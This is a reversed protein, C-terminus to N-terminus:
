YSIGIKFTLSNHVTKERFESQFYQNEYRNLQESKQIRYGAAVTLKSRKSIDIEIGIDPSVLIGGNSDQSLPFSYGIGCRLYPTIFHPPTLKFKIDAFFPLFTKEYISIGTGFGTSLRQNLQYYGSIEWLFPTKAPTSLSLGTGFATSFTFLEPMIRGHVPICALMSIFFAIRKM